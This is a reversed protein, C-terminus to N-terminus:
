IWGHTNKALELVVSLHTTELNRVTCLNQDIQTLQGLQNPTTSNENVYSMYGFVHSRHNLQQM